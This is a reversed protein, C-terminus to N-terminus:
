AQSKEEPRVLFLILAVGAMISLDAVNFIGSRVPGVGVNIFDVVHGRLVRDVLNSVGGAWMLAAGFLLGGSWRYMVALVAVTVLLAGVGVVFVGTRLWDPLNEGLSLFAGTNEAYQLRVTDGFYSFGSVGALNTTALHKTVRDCGVTLLVLVLVSLKVLNGSM